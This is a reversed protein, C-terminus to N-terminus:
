DFGLGATLEAVSTDVRGVWMWIQTEEIRLRSKFINKPAHM